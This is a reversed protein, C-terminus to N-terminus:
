IHMGEIDNASGLAFYMHLVINYQMVAEETMKIDFM